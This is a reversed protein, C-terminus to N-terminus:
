LQLNGNPFGKVEHTLDTGITKKKERAKITRPCRQKKQPGKPKDKFQEPAPNSSFSAVPEEKELAQPMELDKKQDTSSIIQNKLWNNTKKVKYKCYLQIYGGLLEITKEHGLFGKIHLYSNM